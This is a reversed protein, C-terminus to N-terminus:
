NKKRPTDEVDDMRLKRKLTKKEKNPLPMIQEEWDSDMSTTNPSNLVEPEHKSPTLFHVEEKEIWETERINSTSPGQLGSTSPAEEFISMQAKPGTYVSACRPEKFNLPVAVSSKGVDAVIQQSCIDGSKNVAFKSCFFRTNYKNKYCKLQHLAHYLQSYSLDANHMQALAELLNHAEDIIVINNQVCIGNAERTAKHLLTNYPILVVEADEAAKRSAYYPCASLEKGSSVLDEVDQVEVLAWDRLEDIATQKYYPCRCTNGKQKKMVKGDKDTKLQNNTKKQMDLCKENILAMSKLRSVEPNICYIQRSALSAVRVNKGFPSKIIEGVFQSLQSHTRSCIYIKVPQYKDENEEEDSVGEEENNIDVEELLIDEDDINENEILELKDENKNEKKIFRKRKKDYKTEAIKKLNELKKDYENIKGYQIKLLNLVRCLEIEKSQSSLWDTSDAAIQQKEQELKSIKKTGTPSEFIGLKKNELVFYLNQMFKEQIEYPPFPFDFNEPTQLINENVTEMM